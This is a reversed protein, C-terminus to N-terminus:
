PAELTRQILDPLGRGYIDDHGEPGLDAVTGVLRGCGARRYATVAIVSEHAAPCAPDARPGANVTAAVLIIGRQEALQDLTDDLVTKPPDALSLNIV